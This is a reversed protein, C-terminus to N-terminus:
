PFVASTEKRTNFVVTSFSKACSKVPTLITDDVHLPSAQSSLKAASPLYSIVAVSPSFSYVKATVRSRTAGSITNFPASFPPSVFLSTTTSLMESSASMVTYKLPSFISYLTPALTLSSPSYRTTTVSAAPFVLSYVKVITYPSM